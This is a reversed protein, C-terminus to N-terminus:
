SDFWFVLRVDVDNLSKDDFIESEINYKKKLHECYTVISSFAPVEEAKDFDYADYFIDLVKVPRTVNYDSEGDGYHKYEEFLIRAFDELSMYSPSHGGSENYAHNVVKTVDSPLGKPERVKPGRIGALLSFLQYDRGAASIEKWGREAIECAKINNNKCESCWEEKKPMRTVCTHNIEYTHHEDAQWPCGRNRWEIFMHIDTGM